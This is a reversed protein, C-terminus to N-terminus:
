FPMKSMIIEERDVYRECNIGGLNTCMEKWKNSHGDSNYNHSGMKFMLAHAYEHAIVSDIIYDMSEQMVNKNLYIKIKGNRYTTAGYLKDKFKDTIILPVKFRINYHQQMNYLIEQEKKSILEQYKDSIPNNKFQNNSHWNNVLIIIAVIIIGIFLFELKKTFM